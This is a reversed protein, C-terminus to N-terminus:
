ATQLEPTPAPAGPPTDIVSFRPQRPALAKREQIALLLWFYQVRWWIKWPTRPFVHGAALSIVANHVDLPGSGALFLERFSHRYYSRVLKFFAASSTDVFKCYGARIRPARAPNQLLNFADEAARNGSMMAMCVGTSFIPDVFTAADGVLFYGPGAFPECRYSFDATIHLREPFPSNKTAERVYPCRAIAWALAEDPKVGAAKLAEASAVFGISTRTEDLPIMWFWGEECMVIITAGGLKGERRHVNEFHGYYAVRKLDPLTERLKLHRAVMTAQGSCDLLLRARVPGATTALAVDNDALRDISKVATRELATVGADQAAKFLAQDFPARELSYAFDEEGGPGPTFFFDTTKFSNGMVFTAGYKKVKPLKDIVDSLGLERFLAANRPLLSEGIRFRPHADKELLLTRLGKLACCRAATSGAPGSGIVVVDYPESSLTM